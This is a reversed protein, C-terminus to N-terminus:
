GNQAFLWFSVAFIPEYVGFGWVTRVRLIRRYPLMSEDTLWRESNRVTQLPYRTFETTSSVRSGHWCINSTYAALHHFGLRRSPDKEGSLVIGGDTAHTEFGISHSGFRFSVCATLVYSRNNSLSFFRCSVLRRNLFKTKREHTGFERRGVTNGVIGRRNLNPEAREVAVGSATYQWPRARWYQPPGSYYYYVSLFHTNERVWCWRYDPPCQNVCESKVHEAVPDTITVILITKERNFRWWYQM